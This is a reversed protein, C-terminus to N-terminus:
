LTTEAYDDLSLLALEQEWFSTTSEFNDYSEIGFSFHNGLYLGFLLPLCAALTPRWFMSRLQDSSPLLWAITRDVFSVPQAPLPQILIRHILNTDDVVQFTDLHKDLAAQEDWLDKAGSNSALFASAAQQESAPWRAPDCGYSALIQSFRELTM